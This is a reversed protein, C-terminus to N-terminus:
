AIVEYVPASPPPPGDDGFRALMAQHALFIIETPTASGQKELLRAREAEVMKAMALTGVVFETAVYRGLDSEVTAGLARARGLSSRTFEFVDARGSAECDVPFSRFLIETMREAFEEGFYAELTAFQAESVRLM